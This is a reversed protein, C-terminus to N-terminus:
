TEPFFEPSMSEGSFFRGMLELDALFAEPTRELFSWCSFENVPLDSIRHQAAALHDKSAAINGTMHSCLALCQLLNANKRPKTSALDLVRQFYKKTAPGNQAWDVVAFNFVDAMDAAGSEIAGRDLMEVALDFRGQGVSALVIQNRVSPSLKRVAAGPLGDRLLLELGAKQWDRDFMMAETAEAREELSLTRMAPADLLRATPPLDARRAIAILRRVQPIGLGDSQMCRVLQEAIKEAGFDGLSVSVEVADLLYREAHPQHQQFALYAAKELLSASESIKGQERYILGTAWLIEPDEQHHTLIKQIQASADGRSKSSGEQYFRPQRVQPSRFLIRLAADRDELNHEALHQLLRRYQRSLRSKPRSDVFISQNLLHLSDYREISHAREYELTKSFKKLMSNLIQEEDDLTPVNSAVFELNIKKGGDASEEDRIAQVVGTLGALNQENPIFFIAVTDALQRTCIGGVETHGTRSDVLVYDPAFEEKWRLKLDEILLYGERQSYLEQWDIEALRAGYDSDRKGAPMVWLAGGERLAIPARYVYPKIDPPSGHKVYHRVYDVIGPSPARPRLETFTDIGPAELDFDVMLVKKGHNALEVGVNVLALTRGVGGKFSYFTIIHM